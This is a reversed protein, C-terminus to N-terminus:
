PCMHSSLEKSDYRDLKITNMGADRAANLEEEVDSLFLSYAVAMFALTQSTIVGHYHAPISLNSRMGIYEGNKIFPEMSDGVVRIIDLNKAPKIGLLELFVKNVHVLAKKGKHCCYGSCRGYVLEDRWAVKVVGYYAM